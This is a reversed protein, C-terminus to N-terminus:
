LFTVKSFRIIRAPIIINRLDRACVNLYVAYQAMHVALKDAFVSVTLIDNTVLCWEEDVHDWGGKGLCRM